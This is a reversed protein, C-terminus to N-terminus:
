RRYEAAGRCASTTRGWADYAYTRSSGVNTLQDAADWSYSTSGVASVRDAGDYTTTTPTGTGVQVSTRDGSDNYGYTLTPNTGLKATALEERQNYTYAWSGSDPNAQGSVTPLTPSYATVNSASDYSYGYSSVVANGPTRTVASSLRGAADYTDTLTLGATDTRSLVRGAGDYTYGTKALGTFPDTITSIRGTASDYGYSTQGAPDSVSSLRGNAASYAYTTSASGETVSALREPNAADYGVSVSPGGSETAGTM